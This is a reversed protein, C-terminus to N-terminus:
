GVRRSRGKDVAAITARLLANVRKPDRFVRAVDADLVVVVADRPVRRSFRNPRSSRYDFRYERALEDRPEGKSRPKRAKKTTKASM